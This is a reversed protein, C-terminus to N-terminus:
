EGNQTFKSVIYDNVKNFVEDVPFNANVKAVIGLKEYKELVPETESHFVAFRKKITASASDDKRLALKGGCEGCKDSETKGDSFGYIKGCSECQIRTQLRFILEEEPVEFLVIVDIGEGDKLM